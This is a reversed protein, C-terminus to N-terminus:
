NLKKIAYFKGVTLVEEVGDYFKCCTYLDEM